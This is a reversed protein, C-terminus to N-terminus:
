RGPAAAPKGAAGCANPNPKWKRAALEADFRQPASLRAALAERYFVVENVGGAVALKYWMLAYIPDTRVPARGRSPWLLAARGEYFLGLVHQANAQGQGAAACMLWWGKTVQRQRLYTDGLVYLADKNNGQPQACASLLSVLVLGFIVQRFM